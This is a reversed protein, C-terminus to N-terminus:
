AITFCALFVSGACIASSGEQVVFVLIIYDNSSQFAKMARTISPFKSFLNLAVTSLVQLPLLLPSQTTPASAKSVGAETLVHSKLYPLTFYKTLDFGVDEDEVDEVKSAEQKEQKAPTGNRAPSGKRAPVPSSSPPITSLASGKIPSSDFVGRMPTQEAYKWFPAPSSTPMHQSPRQATSPPALRPQVRHPAPTVLSNGEDQFYSSSLAPPSGPLNDSLGYANTNPRRHRPLPSGDGPLQARTSSLQGSRDPTYQPAGSPYSSLPPSRSFPSRKQASDPNNLGEGSPRSLVSLNAPSNPASSGRHGGRGGRNCNKFM